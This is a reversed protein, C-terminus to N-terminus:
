GILEDIFYARTWAKKGDFNEVTVRFYKIFENNLEFGAQTIPRDKALVLRGIRANTSFRVARANEVEITVVNGDIFLGRIAAGTSAYSMGNKLCEFVSEYDLKKPYMVNYAHFFDSQHHNDDNAYCNIRQGDRLMRDYIIGQDDPESGYVFSANSIEM